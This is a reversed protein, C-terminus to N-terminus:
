RSSKQRVRNLHNSFPSKEMEIMEEVNITMRSYLFARGEGGNIHTHTHTYKLMTEHIEM